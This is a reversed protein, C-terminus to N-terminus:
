PASPPATDELESKACIRSRFARSSAADLRYLEEGGGGCYASTYM